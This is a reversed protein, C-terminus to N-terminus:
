AVRQLATRDGVRGLTVARAQLLRQLLSKLRHLQPEGLAARAFAERATAAQLLTKIRQRGLTTIEVITVRGDARSDRRSVLGARVLGKAIQTVRPQQALVIESLRGISLAGEDSLTALVRWALNSLRAARLDDAFEACAIASAQALLFPLYDDTFRL